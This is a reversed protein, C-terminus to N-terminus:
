EEKKNNKLTRVIAEVLLSLVPVALATYNGLDLNAINDSVVALAALVGMIAANTLMKVADVKDLKGTPSTEQKNFIKFLNFM